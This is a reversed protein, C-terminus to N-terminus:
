QNPCQDSIQVDAIWAGRLVKQSERDFAIALPKVKRPIVVAAKRSFTRLRKSSAQAQVNVVYERNGQVDPSVNPSFTCRLGPCSIDQGLLRQGM